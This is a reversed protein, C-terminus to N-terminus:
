AASLVKKENFRREMDENIARAIALWFPREVAQILELTPPLEAGNEDVLEWHAIATQMQLLLSQDADDVSNLQEFYGRKSIAAPRYEIEMSQDGYEFTFVNTREDLKKLNIAM